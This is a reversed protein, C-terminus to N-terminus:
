KALDVYGRRAQELRGAALTGLWLTAALVLAIALMRLEAGSPDGDLVRGLPNTIAAGEGRFVLETLILAVVIHVGTTVSFCVRVLLRRRDCALALACVLFLVFSWILASGVLKGYGESDTELWVGIATLDLALAAAALTVLALAEIAGRALCALAVVFAAGTFFTAFVLAASLGVSSSADDKTLATVIAALAAVTLAVATAGAGLRLLPQAVTDDEAAHM